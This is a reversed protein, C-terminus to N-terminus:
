QACVKEATEILTSETVGIDFAWARRGAARGMSALEGHDKTIEALSRILANPDESAFIRGCSPSVVDSACGVRDSVLVPRGCAMAENVGLGWTENHSSPLVFLDGLRYVVPMRRQNQFPLRKFREPNANVLDNVASGLEGDGVMILALDRDNLSQVARMLEIPRKKRELKGAFLLVKCTKRIGLQQRWEAAQRELEDSPEAFRRVDVSHPCPFLRDGAVGFAQYYARNAAGVVLFAAPLSYVRRLLNKKLWWKPGSTQRDLLHSDGRFMVPIGKKAFARIAIVNSYWAWGTMHIVDPRWAYVREVLTPNQLGLFHHTGPDPSVNPVLEFEYGDTLPIDWTVTRGFGPDFTSREGAHWTFFVKLDINPRKALQQYLPVYYQIPHSVVIALRRKRSRAAPASTELCNTSDFGRM